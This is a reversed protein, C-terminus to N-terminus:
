TARSSSAVVKPSPPKNRIRLIPWDAVSEEGGEGRGNKASQRVLKVAGM